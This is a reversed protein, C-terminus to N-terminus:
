PLREDRKAVGGGKEGRKESEANGRKLRKARHRCKRSRSEGGRRRWLTDGRRSIGLGRKRRRSGRGCDKRLNEGLGRRLVELNRRTAGDREEAVGKRRGLLKLVGKRENITQAGSGGERDATEQAKGRMETDRIKKGGLELSQLTVKLGGISNSRSTFFVRLNVELANM